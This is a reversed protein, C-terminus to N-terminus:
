KSSFFSPSLLKKREKAAPQKLNKVVELQARTKGINQHFARAVQALGYADAEDNQTEADFSVGWASAISECVEEKEASGNGAVFKKLSAPEVCLVPVTPGLTDWLVVKVLGGVEGLEFVRGASGYSYGEHAAAYIPETLLHGCIISRLEERIFALRRVGRLAKPRLTRSIILAGAQSILAVGTGNLSQDVGLYM